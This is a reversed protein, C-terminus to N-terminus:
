AQAAGTMAAWARDLGSALCGDVVSEVGLASVRLETHLPSRAALEAGVADVFGDAKGIGGGIVILEPDVVAIISCLARAVLVAEDAVVQQARRDGQGAAAFVERASAMGQLGARRAAHVIGAASAAAELGGRRRVDEADAVATELPLYAIEGAAGHAGRRLKGDLVLGMGVGTGISVFAFADVDRGHGHTQEALAAADVDNEIMLSEGFASRLDCLLNPHDWGELAGALSLADRGPDYVGPSGLVTQTIDAVQLDLKTCLRNALRILHDVRGRRTKVKTAVTDRVRVSGAFDCIAGRAYERGVDLALVFGAEPRVQYLVANPGPTGTRVGSTRVVGARELNALALSVTPKSLGSLRALEARSIEGAIRIHGLLLQENMARILQPGAPSRQGSIATV